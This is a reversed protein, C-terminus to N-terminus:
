KKPIFVEDFIMFIVIFVIFYIPNQITSLLPEISLLMFLIFHCYHLAFFTRFIIKLKLILLIISTPSQVLLVHNAETTDIINSIIIMDQQSASYMYM